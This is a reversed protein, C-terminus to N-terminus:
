LCKRNKAVDLRGDIKLFVVTDVSLKKGMTEGKKGMTEGFSVNDTPVKQSNNGWFQFILFFSFIFFFV